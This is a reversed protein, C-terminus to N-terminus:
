IITLTKTDRLICISLGSQSQPSGHSLGSQLCVHITGYKGKPTLPCMENSFNLKYTSIQEWKLLMSWYYQETHSFTKWVTRKRQKGNFIYNKTIIQQTWDSLQTRSKVVGHVAARWAERDTVLNHIIKFWCGMWPRGGFSAVYLAVSWTTKQSGKWYVFTILIGLAEWLSQDHTERRFTDWAQLHFKFVREPLM